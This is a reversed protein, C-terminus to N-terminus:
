GGLRKQASCSKYIEPDQAQAVDCNLDFSIVYLGYGLYKEAQPLGRSHGALDRPELTQPKGVRRNVFGHGVAGISM